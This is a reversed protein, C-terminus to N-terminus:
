RDYLLFRNRGQEKSRYMAADAYQILTDSDEGYDPFLSIGISATIIFEHDNIRIPHQFYDLMKEALTVVEDAIEINPVVIVFEDGGLRAVVDEERVCDLLGRAIQCIAEDGAKHGLLDNICKFRDMDILMVAVKTNKILADSMFLNLKDMMYRRNPLGTLTDQYALQLIKEEATKRENINKVAGVMKIPNGNLDRIAKGTIHFWISIGDDGNARFEVSFPRNNQLHDEISERLKIADQPHIYTTIMLEFGSSFQTADLFFGPIINKSWEIKGSLLDWEWVSDSTSDTVVQLREAMKKYKQESEVILRTANKMETVDRVMMLCKEEDEIEVTTGDVLLHVASGTKSQRDVEINRVNAGALLSKLLRETGDGDDFLSAFQNGKMETESCEFMTVAVPNAEEITGERDTIIIAEYSLSYLAMYKQEYGPFLGYKRMGWYVFSTWLLVPITSFAPIYIEIPPYLMVLLSFCFIWLFVSALGLFLTLYRAKSIPTRAARFSSFLLIISIVSYLLIISQFAIYVGTYQTVKWITMNDIHIVIRGPFFALIIIYIILPLYVVLYIWTRKGKRTISLIFHMNLIVALLSLPITAFKIIYYSHDFPLIVRIFELLYIFSLFLLVWSSVRHQFNHPNRQRIVTGLYLILVASPMYVIIPLLMQTMDDDGSHSHNTM